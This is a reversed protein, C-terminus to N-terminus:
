TNSICEMANPDDACLIFYRGDSAQLKDKSILTITISGGVPTIKSDKLDRDGTGGIFTGFAISGNVNSFLIATNLGALGQDGGDCPPRPDSTCFTYTRGIYTANGNANINMVTGYYKWLGIFQNFGTMNGIPTYFITHVGNPALNVNQEKDVVDFSVRLAQMNGALFNFQKLDVDCTYVSGSKSPETPSCIITWKGNVELTFHVTQIEPDTKQTPYATAALHLVNDILMTGDQPSPPMWEGSPKITTTGPTGGIYGLRAAKVPDFRWAYYGGPDLNAAPYYPYVWAQNSTHEVAGKYAINEEIGDYYYYGDTEMVPKSVVIKATKDVWGAFIIAHADISGQNLLIDGPQLKSMTNM